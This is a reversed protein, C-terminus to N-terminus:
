LGYRNKIASYNQEIESDSLRRNYIHVMSINGNLWYFSPNGYYGLYFTSNFTSSFNDNIANYVGNIYWYEKSLSMDYIFTVYCWQNALVSNTTSGVGSGGMQATMSKNNSDWLLRRTGSYGMLTAFGTTTSIPKFWSSITYSTSSLSTISQVQIYDNSGDFVMVGGNVSSFTVGNVLTGNNNLSKSLDYWTNSVGNYSKANASDLCLILGDNIINGGGEVTSM